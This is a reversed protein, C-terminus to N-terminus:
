GILERIKRITAPGIDPVADLEEDSANRLAEPTDFGADRLAEVQNEDLPELVALPDDSGSSDSGTSGTIGASGFEWDGELAGNELLRKGQEPSLVKALENEQGPGFTRGEEVERGDVSRGPMRVNSKIVRNDAM